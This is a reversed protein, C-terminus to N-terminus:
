RAGGGRRQKVEQTQSPGHGGQAAVTLMNSVTAAVEQLPAIFKAVANTMSMASSIFPLTMAGVVRGAVFLPVAISSSKGSNPSFQNRERTAYGLSRVREVLKGSEFMTMVLSPPETIKLGALLLEREDDEVYSLYVNGSASELMPMLHGPHCPNFTWSSLDHTSDRVMMSNGVHTALAIPWGFRQTLEVIYPRAVAVLSGHDSFGLSLAQVMATARYRKRMPEVELLGEHVLTQIIRCTTPYPLKLDCSIEMLSMSGHRNICQLVALSRSISRIGIDREMYGWESEYFKPGANVWVSEGYRYALTEINSGLWQVFQQIAFYLEALRIAHCINPSIGLYRQRKRHM